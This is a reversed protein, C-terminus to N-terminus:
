TAVRKILGLAEDGFRHIQVYVRQALVAFRYWLRSGRRIDDVGGLEAVM